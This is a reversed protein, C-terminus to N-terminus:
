EMDDDFLEDDSSSDDDFDDGNNNYEVLEKVKIAAIGAFLGPYKGDYAQVKVDATTGNGVISGDVVGKAKDMVKPPFNSKCTIFMGRDDDKSRVREDLGLNSIAKIHEKTLASIDVTYKGALENKKTLFPWYLQVDKLIITGQISM